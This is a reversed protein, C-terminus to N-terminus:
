TNSVASGPRPLPPTDAAATQRTSILVALLDDSHFAERDSASQVICEGAVYVLYMGHKLSISQNILWATTLRTAIATSFSDRPLRRLFARDCQDLTLQCSPPSVIHGGGVATRSAVSRRGNASLDATRVDRTAPWGAHRYGLSPCVSPRIATDSLAGGGEAPAYYCAQSCRSLHWIPVQYKYNGHKRDQM